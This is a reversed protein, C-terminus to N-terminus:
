AHLRNRQSRYIKGIDTRISIITKKARIARKKKTEPGEHLSYENKLFMMM